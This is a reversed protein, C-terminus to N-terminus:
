PLGHLPKPQNGCQRARLVRWRTEYPSHPRHPYAIPPWQRDASPRAPRYRATRGSNLPLPCRGLPSSALMPATSSRHLRLGPSRKWACCSFKQWCQLWGINRLGVNKDFIPPRLNMALLLTQDTQPVPWLPEVLAKRLTRALACGAGKRSQHEPPLLWVVSIAYKRM